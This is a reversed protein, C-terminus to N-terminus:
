AAAWDEGRMQRLIETSPQFLPKGSLGGVERANASRLAPRAITTNSVILGEIGSARVM